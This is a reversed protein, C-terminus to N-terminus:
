SLNDLKSFVNEIYALAYQSLASIEDLTILESCCGEEIAELLSHVRGASEAIDEIINEM